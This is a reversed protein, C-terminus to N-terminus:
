VCTALPAELIMERFAKAMAFLVKEHGTNPDQFAEGGDMGCPGDESVEFWVVDYKALMHATQLAWKFNHPWFADSGGADVMLESDSGAAERAAAVIAEDM